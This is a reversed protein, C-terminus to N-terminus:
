KKMMHRIFKKLPNRGADCELAFYVIPFVFAALFLAMILLVAIIKM